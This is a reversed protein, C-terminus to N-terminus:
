DSKCTFVRCMIGPFWTLGFWIVPRVNKQTKFILFILGALAILGLVTNLMSYTALVEIKLPFIFKAIFEPITRINEFLFFGKVYAPSGLSSISRFFFYVAIPLLLVVALKLYKKSIIEKRNNILIHTLVLFPFVLATEKSLLALLFSVSFGFLYRNGSKESIEDYKLYFIFSLLLFISFILDNRGVIWAVSNVMLPHVAYFLSGAISSFKDFKMERLFLYLVWCFTFHILVNSLHYIMPNQGGIAANVVFSANILPRYYDTTMYGRFFEGFINGINQIRSFLTLIIEHDDCYVLDFGLTRGYIILILGALILIFHSEKLEFEIPKIRKETKRNKSM